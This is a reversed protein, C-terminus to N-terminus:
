QSTSKHPEVLMHFLLSNRLSQRCYTIKKSMMTERRMLTTLLIWKISVMVLLILGIRWSTSKRISLKWSAKINVKPPEKRLSLSSKISMKNPMSILHTNRMRVTTGCSKLLKHSHSKSVKLLIAILPTFGKRWGHLNCHVMIKPLLSNNNITITPSHINSYLM